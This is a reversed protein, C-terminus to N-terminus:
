KVNPKHTHKKKKKHQWRNLGVTQFQAPSTGVIMPMAGGSITTPIFPSLQVVSFVTGITVTMAVGPVEVGSLFYTAHGPSEVSLDYKGSEHIAIRSEGISDSVGSYVVTSNQMLKISANKVPAGNEDVITAKFVYNDEM